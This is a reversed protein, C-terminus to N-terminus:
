IGDCTWGVEKRGWDQIQLRHSTPPLGPPDSSQPRIPIAGLFSKTPLTSVSNALKTGIKPPSARFGRSAGQFPTPQPDSEGLLSGAGSPAQLDGVACNGGAAWPARGGQVPFLPPRSPSPMPVQTSGLVKGGLESLSPLGPLLGM